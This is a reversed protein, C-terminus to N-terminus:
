GEAVLHVRRTGLPEALQVVVSKLTLAQTCMPNGDPHEGMPQDLPRIAITVDTASQQTPNAEVGSCGNRAVAFLQLSRGANFVWVHRETYYDPLNKSDLQSPPLAEVGGPVVPGNPGMTVPPASTFPQPIAASGSQPPSAASTTVIDVQPLTRAGNDAKSACGVTTCAIVVLAGVLLNRM